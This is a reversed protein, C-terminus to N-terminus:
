LESLTERVAMELNKELWDAMEEEDRLIKECVRATERDNAERAAVILAKYSAIELHEATYDALFNKVLEDEFPETSVSNIAGSVRGIATKVASPKEGLRHICRKVLEAHRKTQELHELDKRRIHPYDRADKAHNELIPIQAKEMAYADNLWALLLETKAGRTPQKSSGGLNPLLHGKRLLYGAATALALAGVPNQRVMRGVSGLDLGGNSSQRTRNGQAEHRRTREGPGAATARNETSSEM